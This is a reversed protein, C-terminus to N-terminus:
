GIKNKFNSVGNIQSLTQLLKKLVNGCVKFFLKRVWFIRKLNHPNVFVLYVFEAIYMYQIDMYKFMRTIFLDM